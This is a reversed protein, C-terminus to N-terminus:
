IEEDKKLQRTTNETISHPALENTDRWSGAKPATYDSAPISSQGSLIKAAGKGKLTKVSNVINEEPSDGDPENSEILLAYAMRLLGGVGFIIATLAVVFPERGAAITLVAVIPVILFTLLFIMLGRKLGKKRSTDTKSKKEPPVFPFNGDNAIVHSIGTLLFGCRSCFRTEQSIQQQGCIPCYM